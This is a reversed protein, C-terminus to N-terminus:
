GKILQLSRRAPNKQQRRAGAMAARASESVMVLAPRDESARPVASAQDV